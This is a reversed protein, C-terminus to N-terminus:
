ARRLHSELLDLEEQTNIGISELEHQGSFTEIKAKDALWCIFPLFNREATVQGQENKGAFEPLLRSYTEQSMSFLGMDSEGIRPMQDGERRHLVEYIKGSADRSFHIYPEQRHITPFVMSVDPNRDVVKALQAVTIPEVAIQDCWTIWVQDPRFSRILDAPTLIADLMGTRAEQISFEIEIATTLENCHERVQDEFSPHLVLIIRDVHFQYLDVLHDIMAKGAVPVLVKPIGLALRSGAGAAPIILIRSM